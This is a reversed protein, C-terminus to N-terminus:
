SIAYREVAANPAGDQRHAEGSEMQAQRHDDPRQELETRRIAVRVMNSTMATTGMEKQWNIREDCKQRRLTDNRETSTRVRRVMLRGDHM